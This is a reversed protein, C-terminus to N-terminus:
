GENNLSVVNLASKFYFSLHIDFCVYSMFMCLRVKVHMDQGAKTANVLMTNLRVM